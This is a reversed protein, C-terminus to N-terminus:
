KVLVIAVYIRLAVFDIYIICSTLDSSTICVPLIKNEQSNLKSLNYHAVYHNQWRDKPDLNGVFKAWFKQWQVRGKGQLFM